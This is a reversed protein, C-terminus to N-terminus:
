EFGALPRALLWPVPGRNFSGVRNERHFFILSLSLSISLVLRVARSRYLSLALLTLCPLFIVIREYRESAGLAFEM